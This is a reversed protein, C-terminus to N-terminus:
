SPTSFGTGMRRSREPCAELLSGVRGRVVACGEAPETIRSPIKLRTNLRDFCSLNRINKEATKAHEATFVDCWM